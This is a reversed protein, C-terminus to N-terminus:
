LKINLEESVQLEEDPSITAVTLHEDVFYKNAVRMIDEATVADYNAFAKNVDAPNGTLWIYWSLSNAIDSPNDIGMAYSYKIFSKTQTLAISDVPNTKLDTLVKDIETKVYAMDSKDVLMADVSWLGPDVTNLGGASLERVKQEEVVLKKYIDSKQSFALSSIVDLIAMDKNEVSFGPGKYNLNLIPPFNAEQVHAFRTETQEPEQTIEQTFTGREWEGFYKRALDNVKDSTVDGVVLVTCYEPRYYRDFFELSYDYQNPMDVVDEWYGITTHSYTHTTFATNYTKEYLKMYPSTYSKTYEGKVAGAEVKFDEESYKLNMFRDSELEFMKDLMEANGTMHYVTRDWWTNANAAAGIAKLAESYEAKSYKDTGRFMMHEFFHAFGTKGEEVEDRSGVRVVIFFSALGPSNYPVTVVNLGNDLKTQQIPYPFIGEEKPTDPQPTCGMALLLVAMSAVLYNRM